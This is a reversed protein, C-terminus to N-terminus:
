STAENLLELDWNVYEKYKRETDKGRIVASGFDFLYPTGTNDILINDPTLDLCSIGRKHAARVTRELFQQNKRGAVKINSSGFGGLTKGEIYEKEIAPAYRHSGLQRRDSFSLEFWYRNDPIPVEFDRVKNVVGKLESLLDLVESEREVHKVKSRYSIRHLVDSDTFWLHSADFLPYKIVRTDNGNKVKLIKCNHRDSITELERYGQSELYERDKERFFEWAM